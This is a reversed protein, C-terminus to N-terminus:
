AALPSEGKRGAFIFYGRREFIEVGPFADDVLPHMKDLLKSVLYFRGGDKLAEHGCAIFREAISLQAYYPPNALVVDFSAAQLGTLSATAITEFGPVGLNRANLDALAIARVNSDVFATFGEPGSRRAALVGNTGIGCGLDVVRDGPEIEAVEMLARAGHDFRGYSFVGPRSVFSLSNTEDVRVHFRIEHRRRQREGGRQCWLAAHRTEQPVHVRGFVKKLAPQLMTDSGYPTLAVLTGQPELAHYAQEIMDIKLMREGGRPVPFVITQLPQPLDWLDARTAIDAHLGRADLEEQLREAQFLDMQYCLVDSVGAAAVVEAAEHPSGLIIGLPPRLRPRLAEILDALPLARKSKAPM